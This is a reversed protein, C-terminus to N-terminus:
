HGLFGPGFAQPSSVCDGGSLFRSKGPLCILYPSAVDTGKSPAVLLVGADVVLMVKATRVNFRWRLWAYGFVASLSSGILTGIRDDVAIDPGGQEFALSAIFLSMTFGIGCLMSIGYLKAWGVGHPLSPLRVLGLRVALWSVGMVGIQNVFFLGLVEPIVNPRLDEVPRQLKEDHSKRM